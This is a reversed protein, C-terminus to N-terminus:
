PRILKRIQRVYRPTIGIAGAVDTASAATGCELVRAIVNRKPSKRVYGLEGGYQACFTREIRQVTERPIPGLEQEFLKVLDLIM